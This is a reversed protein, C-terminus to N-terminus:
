RGRQHLTRVVDRDRSVRRRCYSPRCRLGDLGHRHFSSQRRSKAGLGHNLKVDLRKEDPDRSLLGDM